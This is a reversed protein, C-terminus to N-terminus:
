IEHKGKIKKAKRVVIRARIALTLHNLPIEKKEKDVKKVIGKETGKSTKDGHKSKDKGKKDIM